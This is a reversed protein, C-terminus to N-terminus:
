EAGYTGVLRLAFGPTMKPYSPDGTPEFIAPCAGTFTGGFHYGLETGVRLSRTFYRETGLTPGFVFGSRADCSGGDSSSRMDVAAFLLNVYLEWRRPMDTYFRLDAGYTIPMLHEDDYWPFRAVDGSVGFAVGRAPRFLFIAGASPGAGM